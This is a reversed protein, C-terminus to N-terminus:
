TKIVMTNVSTSFPIIVAISPKYYRLPTNIVIFVLSVSEKQIDPTQYIKDAVKALASPLVQPDM